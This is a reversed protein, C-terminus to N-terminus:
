PTSRELFHSHRALFAAAPDLGKTRLIHTRTAAETLVALNRGPMVPLTILPVDLDLVPRVGLDGTLRVMGDGDGALTDANPRSLHVILRLYKNRKVATDGFMERINLVGLGRLELLDQLLEPCAGDLVDPAIQTFEPADDAVLRHGRTILELALESKGSGSEGTILVGISYVEMFVGHLTVRPALVRALHYQVLNLLEHGRKLSSWLPTQSEEAAERLDEPCPQDKSIVLALPRYQIMREITEWRLRSDLSDLWSLEETGLIQVKNPYIINLYGALSPRRAVTDVSEITRTGGSQGALWRLSLRDQLQAFLEQAQISANM